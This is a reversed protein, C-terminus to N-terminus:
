PAHALAEELRALNTLTMEVNDLLQHNIDPKTMGSLEPLKHRAQLIAEKRNALQLLDGLTMSHGGIEFPTSAPLKALLEKLMEPNLMEGFFPEDSQIFYRVERPPGDAGAQAWEGYRGPQKMAKPWDPEEGEGAKRQADMKRVFARPSAKVEEAVLVGARTMYYADIELERIGVDPLGEVRTGPKVGMGVATGPAIDGKRVLQVYRAIEAFPGLLHQEMRHKGLEDMLRALNPDEPTLLGEAIADEAARLSRTAAASGKESQVVALTQSLTADHRRRLRSLQNYLQLM